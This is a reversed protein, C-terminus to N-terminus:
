AGIPRRYELYTRGFAGAVIGAGRAAIRIGHARNRPSRGLVGLTARATGGAVRTAGALLLAGRLRVTQASGSILALETRAWSNGIRYRRRIVWDRTAREAPVVDTVVAEDCWVLTFGAGTYRRTFLSDSGGSASFREDFQLSISRVLRLDLLLNNTAAVRVETGTPLRRRDFFGGDAIWPDLPAAFASVVPGVVGGAGTRIRTELLATLWDSAPREDDDIFVLLDVDVSEALARNRAAAIGPTPEHVYTVGTGFRNATERAGGAPDNDVVLVTPPRIGYGVSAQRCHHLLEPLLEMLDDPRRYTLVAVVASLNSAHNGSVSDITSNNRESSIM